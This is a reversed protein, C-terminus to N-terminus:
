LSIQEVTLIDAWDETPSDFATAAVDQGAPLFDVNGCCVLAVM